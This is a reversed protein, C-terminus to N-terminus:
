EIAIAVLALVHLLRESAAGLRDREAVTSHRTVHCLAREFEDVAAMARQRFAVDFAHLCVADQQNKM